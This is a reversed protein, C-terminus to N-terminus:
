QQYNHLSNQKTFTWASIKNEIPDKKAKFLSTKLFM